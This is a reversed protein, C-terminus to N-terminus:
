IVPSVVGELPGSDAGPMVYEITMTGKQDFLSPGNAGALDVTIRCPTVGVLRDKVFVTQGNGGDSRRVKSRQWYKEVPYDEKSLSQLGWDIILFLENDGQTATNDVGKYFDKIVLGTFTNMVGNISDTDVTVNGVMMNNASNYVMKNVFNAVEKGNIYQVAPAAAQSVDVAQGRFSLSNLEATAELKLIDPASGLSASGIKNPSGLADSYVSMPLALSTPCGNAHVYAEASQMMGEALAYAIREQESLNTKNVSPSMPGNDYIGPATPSAAVALTSVSAVAVAAVLMKIKSM